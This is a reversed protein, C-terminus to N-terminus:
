RDRIINKSCLYTIFFYGGYVIVIFLTTLIINSTLDINGVAVIIRNIEKLGFYSHILAIALPFTFIVGIQIFLSKNLIKNDAGIKGLIRYRNKNDSANSLEGIALVTASTIAFTIGLYLGIFILIAKIGISSAEMDIKTRISYGTDSYFKSSFIYNEFEEELKEVNDTKVYNGVITTSNISLGKIINDSVVVTGDNGSSNYNELATEIIPHNAPKLKIGNVTIGNRSEHYPKFADVAMNVNALLLYEDDSIEIIEKDFLNMLKKYDTESIISIKYDLSLASGYQKILKDISNKTMLDSISLKDYKYKNFIVYDESYNKFEEDNSITYLVDNKTEMEIYNGNEDIQYTNAFTSLTYDTLNNEKLDENFVSAMSMSGSLIGITLLLMLSIITTSIVTTNIKSNIQKLTFMNLDKYYIRKIHEFVKVLFGSMSFFLLFTGLAGCVLMIVTERSMMLLVHDFLLKYAYGILILSLIFSVIIVYKNRFKVKENKKSANLLDILKYRSLTIVNFIMVLIFIFGFYFLTKTFSSISFVFKFSNMNVEFLKATLISIFQSLFLGLLLGVVLSILGIAVTEIVLIISVKRKSMGLTFYLGIEKKRRRILFNNSYVILFGLIISVFVSIYGIIFVLGKILDEKSSNLELMSEQADISNFMYFMAVAFVLTFFYISYDKISKRINKLSLKFLM